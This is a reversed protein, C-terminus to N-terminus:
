LHVWWCIRNVVLPLQLQGSFRQLSAFMLIRVVQIEWLIVVGWVLLVVVLIPEVVTGQVWKWPHGLCPSPLWKWPYIGVVAM